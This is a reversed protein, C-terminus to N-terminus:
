WKGDKEGLNESQGSGEKDDGETPQPPDNETTGYEFGSFNVKIRDARYVHEIGSEPITHRAVIEWNTYTSASGNPAKIYWYHETDQNQSYWKSASGNRYFFAAACIDCAYKPAPELDAVKEGKHYLSVTWDSIDGAYVSVVFSDKLIPFGSVVYSTSGCVNTSSYWSYDLSYTTYIQSGDYVRIQADQSKSTVKYRLDYFTNGKIEQIMYGIPTGDANLNCSWWGGCAAGVNHEKLPRGSQCIYDNNTFNRMVHRHGSFIKADKFQTFLSIVEDYNHSMDVYLNINSEPGDGKVKAGFPAHCCFVILKEEKNPVLALDEKLWELQEPLIGATYSWGTGSRGTCIINDMVVVHTQGVNFSFDTPGYMRNFGERAQYQDNGDNHDHNGITQFFTLLSGNKLTLNSMSSKMSNWLEPTNYIIDGMTIAIPNLCRGNSQEQAIYSQIDSLTDTRYREVNAESKCQPDGIAIITFDDTSSDKELVFDNRNVMTHDIEELSYFLPTNTAPDTNIRYGSPTSYYVMRCQEHAHMQYVGNSDTLVIQFGDSVPVGEIAKGTSKETILGVLNNGRLIDTGNINDAISNFIITEMRQMTNREIKLSKLTKVEFKGGETDVGSLTFGKEFLTPPVVFYFSTPNNEETSLLVGQKGCDLTIIKEGSTIEMKPAANDEVDITIEGALNELNNGQLSLTRVSAGTPCFLSVKLYGCVNKFILVDDSLNKTAAGMISASADFTGPEYLQKKPLTTTIKGQQSSTATSCYPYIAYRRTFTSEVPSSDTKHFNGTNDGTKGEFIYCENQSSSFVSIRDEANWALKMGYSLFVRSSNEEISAKLVPSEPFSTTTEDHSCACIFLAVITFLITRKM